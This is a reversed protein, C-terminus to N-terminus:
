FSNNCFYFLIKCFKFIDLPFIMGIYIHIYTLRFIIKICYNPLSYVNYMCIVRNTLFSISTFSCSLSDLMVSLYLILYLFLAKIAARFKLWLLTKLLSCRNCEFCVLNFNSCLSPSKISAFIKVQFHKV